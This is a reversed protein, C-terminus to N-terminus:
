LRDAEVTNSNDTDIYGVAEGATVVARPDWVEVTASRRICTGLNEYRPRRGSQGRLAAQWPQIRLIVRDIPGWFCTM